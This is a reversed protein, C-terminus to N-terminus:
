GRLKAMLKQAEEKLPTNVRATLVNDLYAMAADLRNLRVLVVALYYQAMLNSKSQKVAQELPTLAETIQNLKILNKGWLGL